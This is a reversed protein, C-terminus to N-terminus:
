GDSAGDAATKRLFRQYYAYLLVTLPLALLLGLMGLLKGWISLSLLMVAPNLGMTKGMIRPVLIADQLLQAVVFVAAVLALAGWVSGGTEFAHIVAFGFAPILGVIQLYPIMNLLGIFLGLLIGLPLGILWFGLAFVLGVVGAVAAQARFYRRMGQEFDKLFATVPELYRDPLLKRWGESVKEYDLLIFVLYLGIVFLGLLGLLMSLTGSLLGWLGPLVKAAVTKAAAIVNDSRVFEQVSESAAYNKIAEWIDPPLKAQLRLALDSQGVLGAVVDGLHRIEKGIVPAILWGALLLVLFIAALSIAVAAARRPVKRQVLKVLPNLLYALLFAVAFPILVDSLYDLLSIAGYFLLAAFALRAVRDFTIPRKDTM